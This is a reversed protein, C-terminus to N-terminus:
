DIKITILGKHNESELYGYWKPLEPISFFLSVEPKTFVVASKYSKSIIMDKAVCKDIDGSFIIKELNICVNFVNMSFVEINKVLVVREKIDPLNAIADVFLDENGSGLIIVQADKYKELDEKTNVLAINSHDPGIQELFNDSAIPFATFFLVKSGSLFLEKVLTITFHSGGSKEGYIVLYPLEGETVRYEENNLIIKNM